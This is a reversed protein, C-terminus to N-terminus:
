SANGLETADEQDRAEIRSALAVVRDAEGKVGLILQAIEQVLKNALAAGDQMSGINSSALNVQQGEGDTEIGEFGSVAGEAASTDSAVKM